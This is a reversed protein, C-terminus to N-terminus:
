WLMSIAEPAKCGRRALSRLGAAEAALAIRLHAAAAQKLRGALKCVAVAQHSRRVASAFLGAAMSRASRLGEPFRLRVWCM